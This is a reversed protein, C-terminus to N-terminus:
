RNKYYINLHKSLLRADSDAITADLNSFLEVKKSFYRFEISTIPEGEGGENYALELLADNSDFGTFFYEKGLGPYFIRYCVISNSSIIIKRKMTHWVLLMFFLLYLLSVGVGYLITEVFCFYIFFVFGFSIFFLILIVLRQSEPEYNILVKGSEGFHISYGGSWGSRRHISKSM